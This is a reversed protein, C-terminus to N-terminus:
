TCKVFASNHLTRNKALCVTGKAHTLHRRLTDISIRCTAPPCGSGAKYVIALLMDGCCTFECLHQWVCLFVACVRVFALNCV